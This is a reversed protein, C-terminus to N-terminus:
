GGGSADGAAAGGAIDSPTGKQPMKTYGFANGM